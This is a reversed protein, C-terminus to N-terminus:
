LIVNAFDSKIWYDSFYDAGILNCWGEFINTNMYFVAIKKVAKLVLEVAGGRAM